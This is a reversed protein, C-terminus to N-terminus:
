IVFAVTHWRHERTGLAEPGKFVSPPDRGENELDTNKLIM